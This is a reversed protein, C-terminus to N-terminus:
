KKTKKKVVPKPAVFAKTLKDFLEATKKPSNKKAKEM